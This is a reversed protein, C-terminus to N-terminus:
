VPEGPPPGDDPADAEDDESPFPTDIGSTDTDDLIVVMTHSGYESLDPDGAAPDFYVTLANGRRVRTDHPHDADPRQVTIFGVPPNVREDLAALREALRDLRSSPRRSM